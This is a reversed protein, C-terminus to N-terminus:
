QSSFKCISSMLTDLNLALLISSSVVVIWSIWLLSFYRFQSSYAPCGMGSQRHKRNSYLQRLHRVQCKWLEVLRPQMALTAVRVCSILLLSWVTPLYSLLRQRPCVYPTGKLFLKWRFKWKRNRYHYGWREVFHNWM